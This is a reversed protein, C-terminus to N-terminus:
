LGASLLAVSVFIALIGSLQRPSIQEGYFLRALLVTIMTFTSAVVATIEDLEGTSGLLLFLLGASDLLGHAVLFPWWRPPLRPVSRTLGSCIILFALGSLRGLWLVVLDDSWRVAQQASVIAVAYIASAAFACVLAGRRSRLSDVTPVIRAQRNGAAVVMLGVVILLMATLQLAGPRSGTALAFGMIFLPHSAVIPAAVSVPGLEMSRFFLLLAAAMAMGHLCAIWPRQVALGDAAPSLIMFMSIVATSVLLMGTLASRAGLRRSSHSAMFDAVGFSAASMAGMLIQLM